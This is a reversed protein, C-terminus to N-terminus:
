LGGNGEGELSGCDRDLISFAKLKRIKPIKGPRRSSNYVNKHLLELLSYSM